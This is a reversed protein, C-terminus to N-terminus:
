RYNLLFDYLGNVNKNGCFAMLSQPSNDVDSLSSLRRTQMMNAPVM